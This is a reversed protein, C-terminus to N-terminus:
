NSLENKSLYEVLDKWYSETKSWFKVMDEKSILSDTKDFGEPILIEDIPTVGVKDSKFAKQAITGRVESLFTVATKTPECYALCFKMSINRNTKGNMLRLIDESSLWKNIFKIFPGPFGNLAEIYYGADMLTVPKGLKDAAWKASYLAVEVVDVSQIEPTDLKVQIAEYGISRLSNKAVEFKHPNSTVFILSKM